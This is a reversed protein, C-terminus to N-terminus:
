PERRNMPRMLMGESKLTYDAPVEFLSPAPEERQINTLQYVTDGSRPDSHKSLVVTQLEQSYWTENVIDIAKENGIAGAPITETVRKGEAVVGQITQTGLSEAKHTVSHEGTAVRFTDGTIQVRERRREEPARQPFKVGVRHKPDLVYRTGAVPDNIYLVGGPQGETNWPGVFSLTQEVRVRGNSDRAINATNKRTLRNGDALVQTSETTAQATYPAGTVVKEQLAREGFMFKETNFMVEQAPLAACFLSVLGAGTMLRM